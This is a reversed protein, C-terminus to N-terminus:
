FGVFYGKAKVTTANISIIKFGVGGTATDTEDIQTSSELDVVEGIDDQALSTKGAVEYVDRHDPSIVQVQIAASAGTSNDAAAASIGHYTASTLGGDAGNTAYGSGNDMVAAGKAISTSALVDYYLLQGHMKTVLEFAM